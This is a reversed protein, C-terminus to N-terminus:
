RRAGTPQDRDRRAGKPLDREASSEGATSQTGDASSRLLPRESEVIWKACDMGTPVGDGLDHDFSIEDPTGHTQIWAVFEDHSRVVIWSSDPPSCIDDLYLKRM